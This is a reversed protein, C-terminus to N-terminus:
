TPVAFSELPEKQHMNRLQGCAAAAELGRPRRVSATVKSAELAASFDRAARSSPSKFDSGEVTNWPILNVHTSGYPMHRKLLAALQEAQAPSDNVGGLLTYEFSVRRGTARFYDACDKLLAQLPYAKASPVLQERLEQTPAHISVALTSQLGRAALAAIANPVGVTSITIRRAGIGLDENICRHAAMVSPLNLLPEGMGM